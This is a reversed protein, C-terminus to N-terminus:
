CSIRVEADCIDSGPGGDATDRGSNGSIRDNGGRGFIRDNGAGGSIREAVDAGRIVDPRASGTVTEVSWVRFTGTHSKLDIKYAPATSAAFISDSGSGGDIRGNTKWVEFKDAGSGGHVTASGMVNAYDNGTGLYAVNGGGMVEDNGAGTDVTGTFGTITDSGGYTKIWDKGGNGTVEDRVSSGHISDAHRSGIVKHIGVVTDTGEGTAKGARLDIRVGNSVGAYSLEGPGSIKDNGAGPVYVDNFFRGVLRDNGSGGYLAAPFEDLGETPGGLWDDGSGGYLRESGDMACLTDNGGQGYFTGGNVLVVDNGATGWGDHEGDYEFVRTVPLGHCTEAAAVAPTAPVALAAAALLFTFAWTTTRM